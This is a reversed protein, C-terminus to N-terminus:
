RGQQRRPYSRWSLLRWHERYGNRNLVDAMTSASPLVEEEFGYSRLQKLAEALKLDEVQSAELRLKEVEIKHMSM